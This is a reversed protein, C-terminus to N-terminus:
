AFLFLYRSAVSVGALVVLCSVWLKFGWFWSLAVSWGTVGVAMLWRSGYPVAIPITKRGQVRDGREDEFDQAHITELVVLAANFGGKSGNPLDLSPRSALQLSSFLNHIHSTARECVHAMATAGANFSAYGLANCVNRSLWHSDFRLENSIWIGFTLAVTPAVIDHYVSLIHSLRVLADLAAM